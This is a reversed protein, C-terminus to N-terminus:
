TCLVTSLQYHNASMKFILSSLHSPFSISVGGKGEDWGGGRM